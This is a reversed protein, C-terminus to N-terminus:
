GMENVDNVLKWLTEDEINRYRKFARSGDVHGSMKGILNPDPAKLYANGIFTRRALHSSAVTDIPVLENEGTKPNRIIVKRTIGALKFIKKIAINYKQATIFPFLRGDSMCGEYKKVLEMAMQHIPVRAQLAQEGNDKTKHPSYVLIGNVINGKSLTLLDGVRCGVFCQFIFIDRQVAYGALNAKCIGKRDEKSLKEYAAALDTEAIKNREEISIYYPTGVKETAINIGDFPRNKTYGEEYFFRFLSKLRKAGKIVTNEGRDELKSHGKTVSAPYETLLKKFLKKHKQSLTYEHRLYEIFNEIDAKTVTDIDFSFDSRNYDTARIYGEYRAVERMLVRFVKAHTYALKRKAIYEEALEYFSKKDEHVFITEPNNFSDVVLQLWNSTMSAKKNDEYAQIIHKKMKDLRDSQERHYKVNPTELRQKIVIVGSQRLAVNQKKAKEEPMTIVAPPVKIGLKENKARDVYYEFFDPSVFVGSKARLNFKTGQFFRILVECMGTEKQIKTSLRLEIQAM